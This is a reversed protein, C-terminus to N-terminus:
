GTLTSIPTVNPKNRRGKELPQLSSKEPKKRRGRPLKTQPKMVILMSATKLIGEVKKKKGGHM